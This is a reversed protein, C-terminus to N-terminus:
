VLPRRADVPETRQIVPSPRTGGVAVASKGASDARKGGSRVEIAVIVPRGCIAENRRITM